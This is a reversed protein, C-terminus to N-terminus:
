ELTNNMIMMNAILELRIVQRGCISSITILIAISKSLALSRPDPQVSPIACLVVRQRIRATATFHLKAQSSQHGFSSVKTLFRKGLSDHLQYRM